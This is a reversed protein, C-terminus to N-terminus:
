NQFPLSNEDLLSAPGSLHQPRAALISNRGVRNNWHHPAGGTAAFRHHDSTHHVLYSPGVTTRSGGIDATTVPVVVDTPGTVNNNNIINNSGMPDRAIVYLEFREQLKELSTQLQKNRSEARDVAIQIRDLENSNLGTTPIVRIGLSPLANPGNGRKKRTTGASTSPHPGGGNGEKTIGKILVVDDDVGTPGSNPMVVLSKAWSRNDFDEDSNSDTDSFQQHQKQQRQHHHHHHHNSQGGESSGEAGLQQHHKQQHAEKIGAGHQQSELSDRLYSFKPGFLLGLTSISSSFIVGAKTLFVAQPDGQVLPLIPLGIIWIQAICAISGSIWFSESYETTIRRCEYAQILAVMMMVFNTGLIIGLYVGNNDSYCRGATAEDENSSSSSNSSGDVPMRVWEQPDVVTWVLLVIFNVGFLMLFPLLIDKGTVRIRQQNRAERFIQEYYPSFCLLNIRHSLSLRTTMSSNFTYHGLPQSASSSVRNILWIKSFLASFTAVFGLCFLWLASMCAISCGRYSAIDDEIGFPFISSAM